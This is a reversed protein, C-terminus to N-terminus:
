LLSPLGNNRTRTNIQLESPNSQHVNDFERLYKFVEYAYRKGLTFLLLLDSGLNKM